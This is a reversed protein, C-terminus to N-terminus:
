LLLHKIEAKHFKYPVVMGYNSMTDSSHINTANMAVVYMSLFAVCSSIPTKLCLKVSDQKM